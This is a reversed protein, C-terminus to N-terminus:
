AVGDLTQNEKVTSKLNNETHSGFCSKLIEKLWKTLYM